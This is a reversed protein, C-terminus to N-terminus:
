RLNPKVAPALMMINCLWWQSSRQRRSALVYWACLGTMLEIAAPSASPVLRALPVTACQPFRFSMNAALKLGEPWTQKTPTGM